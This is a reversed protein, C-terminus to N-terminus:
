PRLVQKYPQFGACFGYLTIDGNGDLPVELSYAGTDAPTFM